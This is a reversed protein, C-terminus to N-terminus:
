VRTKEDEKHMEQQKKVALPKNILEKHMMRSAYIDIAMYIANRM